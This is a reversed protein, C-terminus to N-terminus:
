KKVMNRLEELEKRRNVFYSKPKWWEDSVNKACFVCYHEFPFPYIVAYLGMKAYIKCVISSQHAISFLFVALLNRM